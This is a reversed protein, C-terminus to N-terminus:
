LIMELLKLVLQLTKPISLYVLLILRLVPSLGGLKARETTIATFTPHLLLIADQRLCSNWTGKLTVWWQRYSKSARHLSCFSLSPAATSRFSAFAATKCSHSLLALHLCALGAASPMKSGCHCCIGVRDSDLYSQSAGKKLSGGSPCCSEAEWLEGM